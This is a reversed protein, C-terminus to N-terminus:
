YPFVVVSKVMKLGSPWTNETCGPATNKTRWEQRKGRRRRLPAFGQLLAASRLRRWMGAEVKQPPAREYHMLSFRCQYFSVVGNQSKPQRKTTALVDRPVSALSCSRLYRRRVDRGTRRALDHWLPQRRRGLDPQELACIRRHRQFELAGAREALVLRIQETLSLQGRGGHCLPQGSQPEEVRLRDLFGPAHGICRIRLLDARWGREGSDGCSVVIGIESV